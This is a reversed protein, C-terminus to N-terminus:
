ILLPCLRGLLHTNTHTKSLSSALVQLAFFNFSWINQYLSLQLYLALTRKNILLSSHVLFNLAHIQSMYTTFISLPDAIALEKELLYDRAKSKLPKSYQTSLMWSSVFTRSNSIPLHCMVAGSGDIGFNTKETLYQGAPSSLKKPLM